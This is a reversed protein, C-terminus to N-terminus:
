HDQAAAATRQQRQAAVPVEPELAEALQSIMRGAHIRVHAALGTGAHLMCAAQMRSARLMGLM